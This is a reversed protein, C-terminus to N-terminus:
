AQRVFACINKRSIQELRSLSLSLSFSLKVEVRWEANCDRFNIEGSALIEASGASTGRRVYVREKKCVCIPVYM